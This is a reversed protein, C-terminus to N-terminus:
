TYLLVSQAAEELAPSPPLSPHNHKKKHPETQNMSKCNTTFGSMLTKLFVDWWKEPRQGRRESSCGILPGIWWHSLCGCDAKDGRGRRCVCGRGPPVNPTPRVLTVIMMPTMKVCRWLVPVSSFLFINRFVAWKARQKSGEEPGKLVWVALHDSYPSHVGRQRHRWHGPLLIQVRQSTEFTYYILSHRTCTFDLWTLCFSCQLFSMLAFYLTYTSKLVKFMSPHVTTKIMSDLTTHLLSFHNPEQLNM